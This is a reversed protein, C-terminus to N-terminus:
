DAARVKIVIKRVVENGGPTINPRHVDAPFFIFFTGPVARLMKGKTSYNAVDKKADYPKIVTSQSVAAVGILEKGDIVYQIDIYKRHAEWQTSDFNKSVNETVSAYVNEGDIEHKGVSLVKLDHAKLFAFAKDWYTKNVSYQRYFEQVDTSEHPRLQLGGLWKKEHFWKQAEKKNASRAPSTQAHVKTLCFLVATLIWVTKKM